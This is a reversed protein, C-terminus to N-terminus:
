EDFDVSDPISDVFEQVLKEEQNRIKEEVESQFENLFKEYEPFNLKLYHISEMMMTMADGVAAIINILGRGTQTRAIKEMLEPDLETIFGDIESGLSNCVKFIGETIVINLQELNLHSAAEKNAKLFMLFKERSIPQSEEEPESFENM